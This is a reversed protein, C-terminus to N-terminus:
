DEFYNTLYLQSQRKAFFASFEPDNRLAEEIYGLDSALKIIKTRGYRGRSIIRANLLGIEDLYSVFDTFRRQTVPPIGLFDCVDSYEQYLEGTTFEIDNARKGLKLERLSKRYMAYMVAKGHTPLTRIAEVVTDMELRKIALKVHGERVKPENNREAIEGATRLLDLARRADGHEKASAAACFPIVAPELVDEYFAINARDKLIDELQKANYPPFVITEHMLSSRVRVDLLDVFKLDNAIGIISLKARNLYENIRTLMYLINDGSKKVLRDIEDLAVVVVGGYEDLINQLKSYVEDTPLGTPPIREEWQKIFNNAITQLVRYSTDVVECNIYISQVHAGIEAAMEELKKLVYRVTVTKGSGTIGYVMINKPPSGDLAVSLISALENIQDDRHPLREPTYTHLLAERNKFIRSRRRKLFKNFPNEDSSM